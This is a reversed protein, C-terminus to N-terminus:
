RVFQWCLNVIRISQLYSNNNRNKSFVKIGMEHYVSKRHITYGITNPNKEQISKKLRINRGYRLTETTFLKQSWCLYFFYVPWFHIKHFIRKGNIKRSKLTFLKGYSFNTAPLFQYYPFVHASTGVYIM